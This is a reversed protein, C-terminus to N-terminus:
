VFLEQTTLAPVGAGSRKREMLRKCVEVARVADVGYGDVGISMAYKETIPAGGIVVLFKDRSDWGKLLDVLDRMYPMSPTLLSSMAIIDANLKRATDIFQRPTVNTGLNTIEFGNVQLMLAVMNKGIDHIDGQCTGIVVVGAKTSDSSGAVAVIAPELVQEHMAKVVMGAKMLEPLFIELRAFAGGVDYLVPQIADLFFDVPTIGEALVDRALAVGRQKDGADIAAKLEAKIQQLREDPISM